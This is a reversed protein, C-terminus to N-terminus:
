EEAPEEVGEVILVGEAAAPFESTGKCCVHFGKKESGMVYTVRRAEKEGDLHILLNTPRTGNVRYQAPLENLPISGSDKNGVFSFPIKTSAM